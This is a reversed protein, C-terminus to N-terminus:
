MISNVLRSIEGQRYELNANRRTPAPLCSVKLSGEAACGIVRNDADDPRTGKSRKHSTILVASSAAVTTAWVRAVIWDMSESCAIASM